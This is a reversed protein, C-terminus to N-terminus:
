CERKSCWFGWGQILMRIKAAFTLWFNLIIRRHNFHWIEIISFSLHKTSYIKVLSRLKRRCPVMKLRPPDFKQVKPIYLKKKMKPTFIWLDQFRLAFNPNFNMHCFSVKNFSKWVSHFESFWMPQCSSYHHNPDEFEHWYHCVYFVALQLDCNFFKWAHIVLVSKTIIVSMVGLHIHYPELFIFQNFLRIQLQWRFGWIHSANCHIRVKWFEDRGVFVASLDFM